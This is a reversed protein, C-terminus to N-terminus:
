DCPFTMLVQELSLMGLMGRSWKIARLTRLIRTLRLLRTHLFAHGGSEGHACTVPLEEIAWGMARACRM